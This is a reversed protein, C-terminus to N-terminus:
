GIRGEKQFFLYEFSKKYMTALVLADVGCFSGSESRQQYEERTIGLKEAVYEKTYGHRIRELELNPYM